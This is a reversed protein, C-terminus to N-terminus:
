SFLYYPLTLCSFQFQSSIIDDRRRHFTTHCFITPESRNYSVMIQVCHQDQNTTQVFCSVAYLDPESGRHPANWSWLRCGDRAPMCDDLM